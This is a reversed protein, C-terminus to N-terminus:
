GIAWARNEAWVLAVYAINGILSLLAGITVVFGTADLAIMASAPIALLHLPILAIIALVDDPDRFARGGMWLGYLPVILFMLAATIPQPEIAETDGLVTSQFYGLNLLITGAWGLSVLLSTVVGARLFVGDFQLWNIPQETDPRNTPAPIDVKSWEM